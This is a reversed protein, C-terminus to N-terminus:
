ILHALAFCFGVTGAGLLGYTAWLPSGQGLAFAVYAERIDRGALLSIAALALLPLLSALGFGFLAPRWDTDAFGGLPYLAIGVFLGAFFLVNATWIAPRHRRLLTERSTRNYHHPLNRALRATLWTALTGGIVGSIAPGFLDPDM